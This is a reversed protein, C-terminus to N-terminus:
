QGDGNKEAFLIGVCIGLIVVDGREIADIILGLTLLVVIVISGFSFVEDIRV